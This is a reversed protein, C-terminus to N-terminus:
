RSIALLRTSTKGESELVRLLYVGPRHVRPPFGGLGFTPMPM